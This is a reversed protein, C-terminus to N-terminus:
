GSRLRCFIRHLGRCFQRSTRINGNVANTWLGTAPNLWLLRVADAGGIQNAANLDFTLQVAFVSGANGSVSVVDSALSKFNAGLTTSSLTVTQSSGTTNTGGVLSVTTGLGGSSTVPTVNSYSAGSGNTAVTTPTSTPIVASAPGVVVIGQPNSLGTILSSNIVAGTTANYEGVTGNHNTVFLLYNGSVTIGEPNSVSTASHQILAGTTANYENIQNYSVAYLDNGSIAIFSGDTIPGTLSSNIAAGTTANYEGIPGNYTDVYLNNGSVALSWPGNFSNGGGVSILSSNIAAGTTANYESIVTDDLQAIYLNNGSLAVGVAAVDNFLTGTILSANIATGTTANYEGITNGPPNESDNSVYLGNGSIAIGVPSATTILSANITTGTTADYEGITNNNSNSVYIQAKAASISCNALGFVAAILGGFLHKAVTNSSKM